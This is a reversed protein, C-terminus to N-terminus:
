LRNPKPIRRDNFIVCNFIYDLSSVRFFYSDIIARTINLKIPRIDETKNIEPLFISPIFCYYVCSWLM